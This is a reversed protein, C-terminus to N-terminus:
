GAPELLSHSRCALYAECTMKKSGPPLFARPRYDKCEAVGPLSQLWHLVTPDSLGFCKAGSVKTRTGRRRAGMRIVVTTSSTSSASESSSDSSSSHPLMDQPALQRERERIRTLCQSFVASASDDELVFGPQDAPEIRFRPKQDHEVISCTYSVIEDLASMSRFRTISCFGRPFLAHANHWGPRPDIEGLHLLILSRHVQVPLKLSGTHADLPLSQIPYVFKPAPGTRTRKRATSRPKKSSGSPKRKKHEVVSSTSELATSLTRRDAGADEADQKKCQIAKVLWTNRCHSLVDDVEIAQAFSMAQQM